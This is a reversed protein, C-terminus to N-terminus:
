GITGGTKTEANGILPRNSLNFSLTAYRLTPGLFLIIIAALRIHGFPLRMM